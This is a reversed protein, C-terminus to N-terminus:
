VGFSLGLALDCDRTLAKKFSRPVKAWVAGRIQGGSEQLYNMCIYICTFLRIRMHMCVNEETYVYMHIYICTDRYMYKYM